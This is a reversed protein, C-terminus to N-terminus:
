RSDVSGGPALTVFREAPEGAGALPAALEQTPADLGEDTLQFTGWHMAVSQRAGLERHIRVAEAPDCHHVSMFWRPAYAGIPLLALAPAGLRERIKPFLAEEYGTDGAFYLTAEAGGAEGAGGSARAGGSEAFFGGWLRGNRPGSLRNSWHHAPTVTIRIGCSKHDGAAKGAGAGGSEGAGPLPLRHAQWWDLEVIRGPAFGARRLLGGNGLPTIALPRHAQRLRRLTALDCHDYHDHSLLVADIRPLAEFAVGPPHVRRPGSLGLPGCRESWVPDTLLNGAPSQLLFTAHNVWTARWGREPPPPPAVPAINVRAPWPERQGAFKWRLVEALNRSVHDRANFFRFGDCHDSVPFRHAPM